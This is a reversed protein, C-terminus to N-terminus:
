SPSAMRARATRVARHYGALAIERTIITCLAEGGFSGIVAFLAALGWTMVTSIIDSPSLLTTMIPILVVLSTMFNPICFLGIVISDIVSSRDRLNWARSLYVPISSMIHFQGAFVVAYFLSTVLSIPISDTETGVPVTGITMTTVLEKWPRVPINAMVYLFSLYDFALVSFTIACLALLFLIHIVMRNM